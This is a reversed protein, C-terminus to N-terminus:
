RPCTPPIEVDGVYRARNRSGAGSGDPAFVVRLARRRYWPRGLRHLARQVAAATARDAAHSYSLFSDYGTGVAM